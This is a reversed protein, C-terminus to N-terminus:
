SAGPDAKNVSALANEMLNMIKEEVKSHVSNIVAKAEERSDRLLAKM